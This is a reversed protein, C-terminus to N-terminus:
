WATFVTQRYTSSNRCLVLTHHVSLHVSPCVSWGIDIVHVTHSVCTLFRVMVRFIVYIFVLFYFYVTPNSGPIIPHVLSCGTCQAILAGLSTAIITRKIAFEISCLVYIIIHQTALTHIPLVAATHSPVKYINVM